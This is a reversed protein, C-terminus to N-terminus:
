PRVALLFALLHNFDEAPIQEAFDAPMPSLQSARESVIDGRPIRVEEGSEGVMVLGDRKDAVVMGALTSGNRLKLIRSRFGSEVNRNPDLVDEILRELGRNGIGDLQPGVTKGRGGFQHCNMCFKEFTRAGTAASTHASNFSAKRQEIVGEMSEEGAELGETIRAARARIEPSLSRLRSQMGTRLLLQRPGKGQELADLLARAADESQLLAAVLRQQLRMPAVRLAAVLQTNAAPLDARRLAQIARIQFEFKEAPDRLVSGILRVHHAPNIAVLADAAATRTEVPLAQAAFAQALRRELPAWRVLGAIEFALRQDEPKGSALLPDVLSAGWSRAAASLPKSRERLGQDLAKFYTAQRHADGRGLPRVVEVLRDLSAEPAFRAVHSIFREPAAQERQLQDLLFLAAGASEVGVMADALLASEREPWQRRVVGAFIEADRLQDRLAMRVTYILHTDEAPIRGRLELLPEVQSTHPHLRLAEAAARQVFPQPDRTGEVALAREGEALASKAALIRMAHVRVASDPDRGARALAAPDLAGLRSLVWLAHSRQTANSSAPDLLARVPEVAAAGIRTVLEETALMRVTMNPHGLDGALERASATAWSRRPPEARGGDAGRYVIRWIRGRQKDRGPHELPVEVHAIIRNYFDAVYLAGDPGLELDVPRFWPDDSVLFDPQAVALETSGKTSLSDRNIRSTVVNGTFINNRYAAPFQEAAYYVIGSIATSGHEHDMMSPAFGLGSAPKAFQPYDGGALLQYIPQTHCDASYLNGLPDFALGFPNVQGYTHHEIRSGDLRFRFTNGSTLTVSSGDPASVRSRNSFGHCAYVWGDFGRTFASVMGHTDDYTFKSFLVIREDAHDDGDFDVLRYIYPISFVLAGGPVPTVGMPINLGGAFRTFRDSRGDNNADELILVQDKGRGEPAPKPYEESQTVWLRGRNDFALNIPKGIDPEAAVLEIEFGPPLHFTLKEEEPTRPPTPRVHEKFASEVRAPAVPPTTRSCAGAVALGILALLGVKRM